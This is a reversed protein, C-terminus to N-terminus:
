LMTLPHQRNKLPLPVGAQQRHSEFVALIMETAGRAADIGGLPECQEEICKLLDRIALTHRERYEKGKLPEPVDIGASTVPQWQKGSRGPSWGPDGLYYAGPLPGEVIEFVGRSGYIQLGYRSPRGGMNRVSDFHAIAQDQMGYTAHVADGALPGIGEKGEYVDEKTVPRGEQTVLASCWQPHGGLFRIMDMVHTGLVWLDEGGGRRDEKGRGRYELVTGIKGEGILEKMKHLVPSYRTPHAIVLKTHTRECLEAIEDAEALTRCFPKEIYIHIGREAAATAMAHHQDIWRPAIAVLDPKVTDMMKRYDSFTKEVGLKRATQALGSKNDDAVAVVETEPISAWAEDLAHGYNGRGTSGIIGVRYKKEAM